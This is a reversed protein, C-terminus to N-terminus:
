PEEQIYVDKTPLERAHRRLWRKRIFDSLREPIWRLFHPHRLLHLFLPPQLRKWMDPLEAIEGTLRPHEASAPDAWRGRVYIDGLRELTVAEDPAAEALKHM